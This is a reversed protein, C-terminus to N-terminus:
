RESKMAELTREIQALHREEHIGIFALWQGLNLMGFAPHPFQASYDAREFRPRLAELAARSEKLHALADTFSVGRPRIFEPAEFKKDRAQEVYADLSFPTFNRPASTDEDAETASGSKPLMGDLAKTVRRETLSLHEVVGAVSWGDDSARAGQEADGLSEVRAVLRRRVDENMTFIDDVNNYIM